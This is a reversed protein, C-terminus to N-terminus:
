GVVPATKRPRHGEASVRNRGSHKASYLADDARRLLDFFGQDDPMLTAVGVSVTLPWPKGDFTLSLAAIAARVREAAVAAEILNDGPMVVVFEEGGLRGMLDSNRLCRRIAQVTEVLARDGQLHGLETNIRKFHDLDAIMVSLPMTKRQAMTLLRHALEEIARRNYIGTLYDVRAVERLESQGREHCMLLFGFTAMVPLLAGFGYVTVQIATVEFISPVKVGFGLLAVVRVLMMVLGLVLYGATLHQAMTLRNGGRYLTRLALWILSAFVLSTAAHRWEENYQAFAWWLSAVLGCAVLALLQRPREALGFFRRLALTFAAFGSALFLNALVASWGIWILGRFGTLAFGAAYALAGVVWWRISSQSQIPQARSVVLLMGAFLATLVAGVLLVTRIDIVWAMEHRRRRNIEGTSRM